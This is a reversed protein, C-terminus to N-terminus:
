TSFSSEDVRSRFFFKEIAIRRNGLFLRSPFARPFRTSSFNNSSIRRRTASSAAFFTRVIAIGLRPSLFRFSILSLSLSLSLSQSSPKPGAANGRKRKPRNVRCGRRAAKPKRTKSVNRPQTKGSERFATSPWGEWRALLPPVLRTRTRAFDDFFLAAPLSRFSLFPIVWSRRASISPPRPPSPSAWVLLFLISFFSPSSSCFSLLRSAYEERKSQERRSLACACEVRTRRIWIGALATIRSARTVRIVRSM